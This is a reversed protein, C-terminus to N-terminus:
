KKILKLGNRKLLWLADDLLQYDYKIVDFDAETLTKGDENTKLAEELMMKRYEYLGEFTTINAHKRTKIMTQKDLTRMEEISAPVYGNIIEYSNWRQHELVALNYRATGSKFNCEGYDVARKGDLVEIPEGEYLVPDNKEYRQKFEEALADEGKEDKARETYDFGLLNLKLRLSMVGYSNSDRQIQEWREFWKETAKELVAREKEAKKKKWEKLLKKDTPKPENDGKESDELAYCLHRDKAMKENSEAMIDSENFVIDGENGYCIFGSTTGYEKAVEGGLRSSAVRTFIKVERANWEILKESLKEAIDLNEMDNEYDIIIYTYPIQKGEGSLDKKLTEYFDKDNIDKNEFSVIAPNPPVPLYGKKNVGNFERIYRFFTHNLNKDNESAKKDYVRYTIPKALLAGNKKTMLQNNAVLTLLLSRSTEGFGLMIISPKIESKVTASDYDIHRSDMFKTIPYRSTFDKAVLTHKNIFHVRGKSKKVFHLFVEKNTQEGFVWVSVGRDLGIEASDMTLKEMISVLSKVLVLNKADDGTNVIVKVKKKKMSGFLSTIQAGLDETLTAYAHRNIYAYDLVEEDSKECVLMTADTKASDLIQKNEESFGVVVLAEKSFRCVSLKRFANSLNEAFVSTALLILNLAIMVFCFNLAFSYFANSEVLDVVPATEFKLIVLEVMCAVSTVIAEWVGMGSYLAGIIYLPLAVIYIVIFKGRTERIYELRKERDLIIMRIATSLVTIAMIVICVGVVAYSIADM